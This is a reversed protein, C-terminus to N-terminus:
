RRNESRLQKICSQCNELESELEIRKNQAFENETKLHSDSVPTVSGITLTAVQCRDLKLASSGTFASGQIGIHVGSRPIHSSSKYESQNLDETGSNNESFLSYSTETGDETSSPRENAWFNRLVISSLGFYYSSVM